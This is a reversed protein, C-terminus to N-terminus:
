REIGAARDGDRQLDERREADRVLLAHDVAVDLRLVDQHLGVALELDGVEADRTGTAVGLHGLGARDHAGRLVERGFLCASQGDAWRGVEVGDADHEVLHEGATHGELAVGGDVNRHAM